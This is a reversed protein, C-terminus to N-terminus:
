FSGDNPRKTWCICNSASNTCRNHQLKRSPPENIVKWQLEQLRPNFKDGSHWLTHISLQSYIATLLSFPVSFYFLSNLFFLTLFIAICFVHILFQSKPEAPHGILQKATHYKFSKNLFNESMGAEALSQSIMVFFLVAIMNALVKLM